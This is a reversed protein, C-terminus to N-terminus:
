GEKGRVRIKNEEVIWLSKSIPETSILPIIRQFIDLIHQKAQSGTRLVIIGPYEHPPYASIDSFDMDLTILVRNEKKCINILLQDQVGM